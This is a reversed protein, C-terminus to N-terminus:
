LLVPQSIAANWVEVSRAQKSLNCSACSLCLNGVEHKGGNALAVVHDTHCDKPSFSKSCWYCRVRRKGKWSEQWALIVKTDGIPAGKKMARRMANLAMKKKVLTRWNRKRWARYYKRRWSRNDRRWRLQVAAKHALSVHVRVRPTCGCNPNKNQNLYTWSVVVETAKPCDCRCVLFSTAHKSMHSLRLVTLRGFKRGISAKAKSPRGGRSKSQPAM